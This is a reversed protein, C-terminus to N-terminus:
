IYCFGQGDIGKTGSGCGDSVLLLPFEDNNNFKKDTFCLVGAHNHENFTLGWADVTKGTTRYSGLQFSDIISLNQSDETLDYVYVTGNKKSRFLYKGYTDM